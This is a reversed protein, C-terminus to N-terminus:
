RRRRVAEPQQHLEASETAEMAAEVDGALPCGRRGRDGPETRDLEGGAEEKEEELQKANADTTLAATRLSTYWSVSLDEAYIAKLDAVAETM